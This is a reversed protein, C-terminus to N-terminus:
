WIMAMEVPDNGYEKSGLEPIGRVVRVTKGDKIDISPIVLIKRM